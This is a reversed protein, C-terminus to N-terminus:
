QLVLIRTKTESGGGGLHNVKNRLKEKMFMAEWFWM